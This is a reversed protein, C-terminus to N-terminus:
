SFFFSAFILTMSSSLVTPLLVSTTLNIRINQNPHRLSMEFKVYVFHFAQSKKKKVRLRYHSLWDLM